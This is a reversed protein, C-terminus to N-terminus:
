EKDPNEDTEEKKNLPKTMAEIEEIRTSIVDFKGHLFYYKSLDLTYEDRINALMSNVILIKKMQEYGKYRVQGLYKLTTDYYHYPIGANNDKSARKWWDIFEFMSLVYQWGVENASLCDAIFEYVKARSYKTGRFTTSEPLTYIKDKLVKEFECIEENLKDLEAKMEPVDTRTKVEETLKSIEDDYIEAQTKVKEPMQEDIKKELEENVNVDKNM